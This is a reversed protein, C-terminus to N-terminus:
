DEIDPNWCLAQAHGASLSADTEALRVLGSKSAAGEPSLSFVVGQGSKRPPESVRWIRTTPGANLQRIAFDGAACWSSPAGMGPSAQVLFRGGELPTVRLDNQTLYAASAPTALALLAPIALRRLM